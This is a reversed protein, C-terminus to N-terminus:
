DMIFLVFVLVAIALLAGSAIAIITNLPLTSAKKKRSKKLHRNSVITDEVDPEEDIGLDLSDEPTAPGTPPFVHSEILPDSALSDGGFFRSATPSNPIPDDLGITKTEDGFFSEDGSFHLLGHVSDGKTPLVHTDANQNSTLAQVIRSKSPSTTDAPPTRKKLTATKITKWGNIEELQPVRNVTNCKGCCAWKGATDSVVKNRTHCQICYFRIFQGDYSSKQAKQQERASPATEPIRTTKRCKPCRCGRGRASEPVKVRAKCHKCIVRILVVTDLVM